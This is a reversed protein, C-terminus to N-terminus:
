NEEINVAKFESINIIKKILFNFYYYENDEKTELLYYDLIKEKDHVKKENFNKEIISYAYKLADENNYYNIVEKIEYFINKEKKIFKYDFLLYVEEEFMEFKCQKNKYLNFLKVIKKIEINGTRIYSTNVKRVKVIEKEVVEGLVIGVPHIYDIKDNRILLNGSIIIDGKKVSQNDKILNVGKKIFYYRIVCDKNSIIDGKINSTEDLYSKEDQKDIVVQLVNGKKNVNIWEYYYFKLKLEKNINTLEDNLYYYIIKKDLKENYIFDVVEQNYTNEIVFEVKKIVFQENILFLLLMIVSIISILYKKIFCLVKAKRKNFYSLETIDKLLLQLSKENTEFTINNDKVNLNNVSKNSLYNLNDKSTNVYYKM